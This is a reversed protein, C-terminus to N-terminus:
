IGSEEKRLGKAVITAKNRVVIGREDEQKQLGGKYWLRHGKALDVLVWVNHLKFHLLEEQLQRRGLCTDVLESYSTKMRAQNFLSEAVGIVHDTSSGKHITTHPYFFSGYSPSINGLDIGQDEEQSDESTPSPGMLGESTATNVEYDATSLERSGTNVQPSATNVQPFNPTIDEFYHLLGESITLSICDSRTSLFTSESSRAYWHNKGMQEWCFIVFGGDFDKFDFTLLTELCTGQAGSDVIRKMLQLQVANSTSEAEEEADSVWEEIIPADTNSVLRKKPRRVMKHCNFMRGQIQEYGATSNGTRHNDEKLERFVSIRARMSVFGYEVKSGYRKWDDDHIQELDAIAEIIRIQTEKSADNGWLCAASRTNKREVDLHM